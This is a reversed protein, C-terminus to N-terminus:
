TTKPEAPSIASTQASAGARFSSMSPVYNMPNLARTITSMYSTPNELAAVTTKWATYDTEAQRLRLTMQDSLPKLEAQMKTLKAFYEKITTDMKEIHDKSIPSWLAMKTVVDPPTPKVDMLKVGEGIEKLLQQTQEYVKKLKALSLDFEEREKKVPTLDTIGASIKTSSTRVREKFLGIQNCAEEIIPKGKEFREELNKFTSTYTVTQPAGIVAM